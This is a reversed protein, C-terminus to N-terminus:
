QLLHEVILLIASELSDFNEILMRIEKESFQIHHM